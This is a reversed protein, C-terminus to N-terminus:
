WGFEGKVTSMREIADFAFVELSFGSVPPMPPHSRVDEGSAANREEM